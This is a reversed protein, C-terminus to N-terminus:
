LTSVIDKLGKMRGVVEISNRAQENMTEWSLIGYYFTNMRKDYTVPGRLEGLSIIDGAYIKRGNKDKHGTYRSKMDKRIIAM